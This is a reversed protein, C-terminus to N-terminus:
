SSQFNSNGMINDSFLDFYLKFIQKSIFICVLLTLSSDIWNMLDLNNNLPKDCKPDSVWFICVNVSVITATKLFLYLLHKAHPCLVGKFYCQELFCVSFISVILFGGSIQGRQWLPICQALFHWDLYSILFLGIESFELSPIGQTGMLFLVFCFLVCVLALEMKKRLGEIDLLAAMLIDAKFAKRKNGWTTGELIGVLSKLGRGGAGM